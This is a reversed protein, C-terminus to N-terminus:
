VFHAILAFVDGMRPTADAIISVRMGQLEQEQLDKEMRLIKDLYNKKIHSM